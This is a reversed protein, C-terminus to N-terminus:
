ATIPAPRHEHPLEGREEYVKALEEDFYTFYEDEHARRLRQLARGQARANRRMQEGQREQAQEKTRWHPGRARARSTQM